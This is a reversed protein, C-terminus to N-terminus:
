VIGMRVEGWRFFVGADGQYVVANNFVVVLQAGFQAGEAVHELALGVGFDDGVQNVMHIAAVQELGDLQSDLAQVAGVRDGYEATFFRVAHNGRALTRWQDDTDALAFVENRRVRHRQGAGGVLDDVQFFAVHDVQLQAAHQITSLITFRDLALDLGHVRVGARGLQAGVTMVHLLFDELLRAHDAVGQFADGADHRFQEAVAGFLTKL